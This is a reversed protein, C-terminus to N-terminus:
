TASGVVSPRLRSGHTAAFLDLVTGDTFHITMQDPDVFSQEVDYITKGSLSDLVNETM